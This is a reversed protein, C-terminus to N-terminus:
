FFVDDIGKVVKIYDLIPVGQNELDKLNNLVINPLHRICYFGCDQNPNILSMAKKREDSIWFKNFEINDISGMKKDKRGRMYPCPYIGTQTILSRFEMIPCKVYEKPQIPNDEKDLYEISKPAVVEFNSDELSKCKQYQESVIQRLEKSFPLLYHQLSVMPKFEFYDCGIEKAIKAAEYIEHANTLNEGNNQRQIILFCYGLAGKKVKALNKMNNIVM